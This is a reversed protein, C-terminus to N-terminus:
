INRTNGNRKLKYTLKKILRKRRMRFYRDVVDSIEKQREPSLKVDKLSM